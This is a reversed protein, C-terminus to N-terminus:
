YYVDNYYWSIHKEYNLPKILSLFGCFYKYQPAGARHAAQPVGVVGHREFRIGNNLSNKSLSM